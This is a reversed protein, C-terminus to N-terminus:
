DHVACSKSPTFKPSFIFTDGNKSVETISTPDGTTDQTLWLHFQPDPLRLRKSTSIKIPKLSCCVYQNTTNNIYSHEKKHVSILNILDLHSRRNKHCKLKSQSSPCQLCFTYIYICPKFQSVCKISLQLKYCFYILVM